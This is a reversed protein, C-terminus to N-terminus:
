SLRRLVLALTVLFFTVFVVLLLGTMAKAEWGPGGQAEAACRVAALWEDLTSVPSDLCSM